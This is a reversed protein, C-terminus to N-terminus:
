KFLGEPVEVNSNKMKQGLSHALGVAALQPSVKDARKGPVVNAGFFVLPVHTDYEHPSGHTTGTTYKTWIFYYPKLVPMVDGSREPQFSNKVMNGFGPLDATSLMQTRTYVELAYPRGKFWEAIATEAEVNTIGAAKVTRYNLYVGAGSQAEIWKAVTHYKSNLFLELALVEKVADVRGADIGKSKSVEPLPCVGHDATVAMLYNGRGVKADLYNIMEAVIRDSRLTVDLVEQSDPGWVHGISDNSSYSVVLYDTQEHQGLKENDLVTQAVQWTLDNGMPSTYVADYFKPGIHTEGGTMPHPFVRGQKIGLGEGVVDDPGSFQAYDIDTRFRNWDKGFWDDALHRENFKSMYGPLRDTYYDSTVFAGTNDDYWLCLDAKMGTPLVGGRDKLSVGIVKGRSGTAQKVVDGLAPELLRRPTGGASKGTKSKAGEPIMRYRDGFTACYVYKGESRDYWENEIIGHQAPVCGTGITAHGCGTLTMSYPYHCNTFWAGESTLRNFGDSGFQKSWRELYDGRMQDFVVLVLLKPGHAQPTLQQSAVATAVHNMAVLPLLALLVLLLLAIRSARLM